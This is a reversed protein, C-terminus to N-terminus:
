YTIVERSLEHVLDHGDWFVDIDMAKGVPVIRDVGRLGLSVIDRKLKENDIGFYTITQYRDTIVSYLEKFDNLSYEYFLGGKGRLREVLDNTTSLEVRYLLNDKINATAIIDFEISNGCLALYKEVSLSDQLTYKREAVRYIKDWFKERARPSDNVWYIAQPSSCANQDMLYTDVYFGEVLRAITQEDSSLIKDGDLVCISYRDPFCIDVCRPKTALRRITAITQDGGWIMRADSIKSYEASIKEDAPYRIFATRKEIGPYDALLTKLVRCLFDMQPFDKSPLRVINANGALLSFFFSFAFNVPINSPAIHFCLGKGISFDGVVSQKKIKQINGKRCWFGLAMIDPFLRAETANILINSLDSLFNCIEDCFVRQPTNLINDNGVIYKVGKM